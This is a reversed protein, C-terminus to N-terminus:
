TNARLQGRKHTAMDRQPTLQTNPRRKRHLNRQFVDLIPLNQKSDGDYMVETKVSFLLGLLVDLLRLDRGPLMPETSAMVLPGGDFRLEASICDGGLRSWDEERSFLRM